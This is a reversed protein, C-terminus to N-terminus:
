RISEQGLTKTVSSLLKDAKIPKGLFDAIGLSECMERSSQQIDASCILVPTSNGNERMQRLMTIGDCKPMLIDSVVLDFMDTLLLALGQEGDAGELVEHGADRLTNGVIARSLRSDDVVLIKAMSDSESM